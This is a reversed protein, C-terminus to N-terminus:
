LCFPSLKHFNVSNIALQIVTPYHSIPVFRFIVEGLGVRRRLGLRVGVGRSGGQQFNPFLSVAFFSCLKVCIHLNIEQEEGERLSQKASSQLGSRENKRKEWLVLM